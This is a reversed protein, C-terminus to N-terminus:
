QLQAPRDLLCMGKSQVPGAKPQNMDESGPVISSQHPPVAQHNEGRDHRHGDDRPGIQDMQSAAHAGHPGHGQSWGGAGKLERRQLSGTQNATAGGQAKHGRLPPAAALSGEEHSQLM